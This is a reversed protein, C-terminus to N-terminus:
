IMVNVSTQCSNAGKFYDIENPVLLRRRSLLKHQLGVFGILSILHSSWTIFPDHSKTSHLDENCAVVRGPKTAM